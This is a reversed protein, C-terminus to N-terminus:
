FDQNAEVIHVIDNDILMIYNPTIQMYLDDSRIKSIYSLLSTADTKIIIDSICTVDITENFSNQADTCILTNDHVNLIVEDSFQVFRSMTDSFEKRNCYTNHATDEILACMDNYQFDAYLQRDLERMCLFYNGSSFTIYMDKEEKVRSFEIGNPFKSLMDLTHKSLLLNADLVNKTYFSAKSTDTAISAHKGIYVNSFSPMYQESEKKIASIFLSKLISVDDKECTGSTMTVGLETCLRISNDHTLPMNRTDVITSLKYNGNAKINLVSGNPNLEITDSNVKNVFNCFPVCEVAFACRDSEVEFTVYMDADGSTTCLTLKGENVTFFLASRKVTTSDVNLKLVDLASKLEETQLIM